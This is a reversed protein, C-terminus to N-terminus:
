AQKRAIELGYGRSLIAVLDSVVPTPNARRLATALLSGETPTLITRGDPLVYGHAKAKRLVREWTKSSMEIGRQNAPGAAPRLIITDLEALLKDVGQEADRLREVHSQVHSQAKM